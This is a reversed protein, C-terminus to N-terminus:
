YWGRCGRVWPTKGKRCQSAWLRTGLTEGKQYSPQPLFYKERRRMGIFTYLLPFEQTRSQRAITKEDAGPPIGILSVNM